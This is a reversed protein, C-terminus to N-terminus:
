ETAGPDTSVSSIGTSVSALPMAYMSAVNEQYHSPGTSVPRYKEFGPASGQLRGTFHAGNRGRVVYDAGSEVELSGWVLDTGPIVHPLDIVIGEDGERELYIDNRHVSDSIVVLRHVMQPLLSPLRFPAITGWRYRPILEV